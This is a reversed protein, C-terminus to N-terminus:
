VPNRGVFFESFPEDTAAIGAKRLGEASIRM